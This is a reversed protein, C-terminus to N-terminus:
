RSGAALLEDATDYIAKYAAEIKEEDISSFAVRLTKNDIAIVGVGKKLLRQRLEEADVRTSFSMFYGSNFPLVELAKCNHSDVFSRVIRYRKELTKKLAAKEKEHLADKFEHILISQTPTSSCSVSSRIVGMLKKVLADYQGDTMGKGGFTLFGCRFGWAFDEKTPGDAKVALVNEHLDALYAFLSQGEIDNEYNLAFYADDSIVLLRYGEEATERIIRVIEKVESHTPSYGSPNQPFNLLLRVTGCRKAEDKVARELSAIDFKGDLFMPFQHYQAGRRAEVILAYNDWSPNSALLPRTNDIFLDAIYSIGATLGPTVVPLSIKKGKLLPNKVLMQDQWAKRLENNGATPAYAVIEHPSFASMSKQISPLIAVEGNIVTMGITGNAVFATKKAEASQAIIGKPFYMRCGLDSLLREAASGSLVENLEQALPNLM